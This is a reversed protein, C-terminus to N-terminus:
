KSGEDFVGYKAYIDEEDGSEEREDESEREGDDGPEGFDTNNLIYTL